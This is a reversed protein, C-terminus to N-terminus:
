RIQAGPLKSITQRGPGKAPATASKSNKMAATAKPTAASAATPEREAAKDWAIERCAAVM